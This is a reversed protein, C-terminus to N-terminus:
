KFNESSLSGYRQISKSSGYSGDDGKEEKILSHRMIYFDSKINQLFYYFIDEPDPTNKYIKPNNQTLHYLESNKRIKLMEKCKSVEEQINGLSDITRFFEEKILVNCNKEFEEKILLKFQEDYIKVDKLSKNEVEFKKFDKATKDEVEFKKQGKLNEEFKQKIEQRRKELCHTLVIKGIETNNFYKLRYYFIGFLFKKGFSILLIFKLDINYIFLYLSIMLLTFYFSLLPDTWFFLNKVKECVSVMNTCFFLVSFYANKYENYHKIPDILNDIIGGEEKEILYNARKIESDEVEKKTVIFKSEMDYPSRLSFIHKNIFGSCYNKYLSSYTFLFILVLLIMHGIFYKAEMLAIFGLTTIMLLGSFIPYKFRFLEKYWHNLEKFYVIMKKMRKLLAKFCLDDDSDDLLMDELVKKNRNKCTLVLLNSFNEISVSLTCNTPPKKKNSNKQMDVEIIDNSFFFDNLIEPLEITYSFIKEQQSTKLLIGDDYVKYLEFTLTGFRNHIPLLLRQHIIGSKDKEITMERTDFTYPNLIVKLYVVGEFDNIKLSNIDVSLKGYINMNTEKIKSIYISNSKGSYANKEVASIFEKVDLLKHEKTFKLYFEFNDYSHYLKILIDSNFDNLTLNEPSLEQHDFIEYIEDQSIYKSNKLLFNNRYIEFNIKYLPIVALFNQVSKSEYVFLCQENIKIFGKMSPEKNMRIWVDNWESRM